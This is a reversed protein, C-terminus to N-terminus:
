LYYLKPFNTHYELKHHIYFLELNITKCELSLLFSEFTSRSSYDQNPEGKKNIQHIEIVEICWERMIFSKIIKLTTKLFEPNLNPKQKAPTFM